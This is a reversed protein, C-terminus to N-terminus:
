PTSLAELPSWGRRLRAGIKEHINNGMIHLREIWDALCLIIGDIEIIVNRRTNRSQERTTVWRCNTPGYDGDNNIRDISYKRSPKPGMDRFFIEFDHLWEDCVKIGRGGYDKYFKDNKNNCRKIMGQWSLYEPSSTGEPIHKYKARSHRSEMNLCGCSKSAGNKLNFGAVTKINGCDCLCKWMSQSHVNSDERCIVTWRNFKNGTIDIKKSM